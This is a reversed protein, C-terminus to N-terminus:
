RLLFRAESNVESCRPPFSSACLFRALVTVGSQSKTLKSKALVNRLHSTMVSTLTFAHFSRSIISFNSYLSQLEAKGGHQDGQLPPFHSQTVLARTPLPCQPAQFKM